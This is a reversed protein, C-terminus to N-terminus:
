KAVHGLTVERRGPLCPVARGPSLRACARSSRLPGATEPQSPRPPTAAPGPSGSAKWVWCPRELRRLDSSFRLRTDGLAARPSLLRTPSRGQSCLSRLGNAPGSHPEPQPRPCVGAGQRERMLHLKRAPSGASFVRARDHPGSSPPAAPTLPPPPLLCSMPDGLLPWESWTPQSSTPASTLRWIRGTTVPHGATGSLGKLSAPPALRPSPPCIALPVHGSGPVPSHDTPLRGLRGQARTRGGASFLAFAGLGSSDPHTGACPSRSCTVPPPRFCTLVASPLSAPPGGHGTACCVAPFCSPCRTGLHPLRSQGAGASQPESAAAPSLLRGFAGCAPVPPSAGAVEPSRPCRGAPGVKLAFASPPVVASFGGPSRGGSCCGCCLRCLEAVRHM